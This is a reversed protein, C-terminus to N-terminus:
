SVQCVPRRTEMRAGVRRARGFRRAGGLRLGTNSAGCPTSSPPVGRTGQAEADAGARLTPPALRARFAGGACCTTKVRGLM